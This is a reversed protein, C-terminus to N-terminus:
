KGHIYLVQMVGHLIPLVIVTLRNCANEILLLTTIFYFVQSQTVSGCFYYCWWTSLVSPSSGLMTVTFCFHYYWSIIEFVCCRLLLSSLFYIHVSSYLHQFLERKSPLIWSVYTEYTVTFNLWNCSSINFSWLLTNSTGGLCFTNCFAAFPHLHHQTPM